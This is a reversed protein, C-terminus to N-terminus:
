NRRLPSSSLRMLCAADGYGRLAAAMDASLTEVPEFGLTAWFTRAGQLAVLIITTLGMDDAVRRAAATMAPGIGRRQFRPAVALDHLYYCDPEAPLAGLPADLEVPVAQTWPHSILYAAPERGVWGIFCGAPFLARKEAYAAGREHLMAPYTQAQIALIAPIDADRMARIVINDDSM